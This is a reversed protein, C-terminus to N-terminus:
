RLSLDTSRLAQEMIRVLDYAQSFDHDPAHIDYKDKVMANFLKPLQASTLPPM